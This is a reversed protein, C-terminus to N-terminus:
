IYVQSEGAEDQILQPASSSHGATRIISNGLPAKLLGALDWCMEACRLVGELVRRATPFGLPTYPDGPVGAHSIKFINNSIPPNRPSGLVGRIPDRM